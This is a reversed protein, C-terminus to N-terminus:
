KTVFYLQNKIKCKWRRDTNYTNYLGNNNWIYLIVKIEAFLLVIEDQTNVVEITKWNHQAITFIRSSSVYKTNVEFLYDKYIITLSFQISLINHM